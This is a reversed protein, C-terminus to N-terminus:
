VGAPREGIHLLMRGQGRYVGKRNDALVVIDGDQADAPSVPTGDERFFQAGYPVAIERIPGIEIERVTGLGDGVGDPERRVIAAPPRWGPANLEARTELAVDGDDNPGAPWHMYFAATGVNDRLEIHNGFLHKIGNVQEESLYGRLWVKAEERAEEITVNAKVCDKTHYDQGNLRKGWMGVMLVGKKPPHVSRWADANYSATDTITVAKHGGLHSPGDDVYVKDTFTAELVRNPHVKVKTFRALRGDTFEVIANDIEFPASTEMAGVTDLNKPYTAGRRCCRRAEPRPAGPWWRTISDTTRMRSIGTLLIDRYPRQSRNTRSCGELNRPPSARYCRPLCRVLIHAIAPPSYGPGAPGNQARDLQPVLFRNARRGAM